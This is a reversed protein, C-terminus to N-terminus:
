RAPIYFLEIVLNKIDDNDPYFEIFEEGKKSEGKITKIGM